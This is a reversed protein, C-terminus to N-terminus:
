PRLTELLMLGTPPSIYFTCAHMLVLVLIASVKLMIFVNQLPEPIGPGASTQNLTEEILLNLQGIAEEVAAAFIFHM